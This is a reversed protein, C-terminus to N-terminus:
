IVSYGQSILNYASEPSLVSVSFFGHDSKIEYLSNNHLNNDLLSNSGFILYRKFNNEIFFNSDIDVINSDFIIQNQSDDFSSLEDFPLAYSNTLISSFLLFVFLLSIKPM